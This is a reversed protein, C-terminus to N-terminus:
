YMVENKAIIDHVRDLADMLYEDKNLIISAEKYIVKKINLYKKDYAIMDIKNSGDLHLVIDYDYIRSEKLTDLYSNFIIKDDSFKVNSEGTFIMPCAYIDCLQEQLIEENKIDILNM